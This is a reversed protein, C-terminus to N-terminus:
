NIPNGFANKGIYQELITLTIMLQLFLCEEIVNMRNVKNLIIFFLCNILFVFEIIIFRGVM